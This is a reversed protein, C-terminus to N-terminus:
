PRDNTAAAAPVDRLREQVTGTTAAALLLVGLRHHAGHLTM